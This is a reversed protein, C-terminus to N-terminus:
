GVILDIVQEVEAAIMDSGGLVSGGPGLCELDPRFDAARTALLGEIGAALLKCGASGFQCTSPAMLFVRSADNGDIFTSDSRTGNLDLSYLIRLEGLTLKYTGPPLSILPPPFGPAESSQEIAARLSCRGSADACRGDGPNSDHTDSQTNVIFTAALVPTVAVALASGALLVGIVLFFRFSTTNKQHGSRATKWRIASTRAVQEVRYPPEIACMAAKRTRAVDHRPHCAGM